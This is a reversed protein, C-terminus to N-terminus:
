STIGRDRRAAGDENFVPYYPKHHISSRTLAPLTRPGRKGRPDDAGESGFLSQTRSVPAGSRAVEGGPGVTRTGGGVGLEPSARVGDPHVASGASAQSTGPHEGCGRRGGRRDSKKSVTARSPSDTQRRDRCDVSGRRGRVCVLFLTIIGVWEQTVHGAATAVASDLYPGVPGACLVGTEVWLDMFSSGETARHSSGRVTQTSPM